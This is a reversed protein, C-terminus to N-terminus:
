IEAPRHIRPVRGSQRWLRQLSRLLISATAIALTANLVGALVDVLFHSGHLPTALLM